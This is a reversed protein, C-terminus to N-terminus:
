HGEAAKSRGGWRQTVEAMAPGRGRELCSGARRPTRVGESSAAPRDGPGGWAWCLSPGTPGTPGCTATRPISGLSAALVCSYAAGPSARTQAGVGRM